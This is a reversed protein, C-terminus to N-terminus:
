AHKHPVHGLPHVHHHTHLTASEGGYVLSGDEMGYIETTARALFDYEHSVILLTKDLNELITTIHELTDRDLGTTPEDLLLVDPEMSLVTALAVLRKEGGSLRYPVRNEFGSLHLDRLTRVAIDRAEDPSKGLNLPGFAVDELVTPCFLQDDADQFVFGVRKRLERFDKETEVPKGFARISGGSVPQVGMIVQLFTTKGSGNPGVIGLKQGQHLTFDVHRLVRRGGAFAHSIGSLEILPEGRPERPVPHTHEHAHGEHM